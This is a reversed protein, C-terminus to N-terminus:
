RQKQRKPNPGGATDVSSISMSRRGQKRSRTSRTSMVSQARGDVEGEAEAGDDVDMPVPTGLADGDGGEVGEPNEGRLTALRAKSTKIDQEHKDVAKKIEVLQQAADVLSAFKALNDRTPMVLRSHSISLEGLLQFVRPAIATKPQALKYSRLHVPIHAAKTSSGATQEVETRVICHLADYAASKAASKKPPPQPLAIVNSASPTIPTQPEVSGAVTKKKKKTDLAASALGDDEISIDPLGSEIGCLTRLLEDRDKKFRRENEKLKELEFYLADEEAIQEPTRNELSAVYQKRLIEKDIAVPVNVPSVEYSLSSARKGKDYTLSSILALKSAEDGAWPRNRVLKRCVSFYRDKLEELSREPRGPFEYRDHVVFFRGDYDRVLNFLYDTEEKTWKSDELLRTYEDQSYVYPTAPVNYKAFPYDADEPTSTGGLNPKQKLRPKAFQTVLTPATPGILAYLERPIGEPKKAREAAQPKKAQTSPGAPPPNPISLISRVDAASAAM